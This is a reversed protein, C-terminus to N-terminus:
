DQKPLPQVIADLLKLWGIIDKRFAYEEFEEGEPGILTSHMEIDVSNYRVIGSCKASGLVNARKECHFPELMEFKKPLRLKLAKKDFIFDSKEIDKKNTLTAGNQNFFYSVESTLAPLNKDYRSTAIIKGEKSRVYTQSATAGKSCDPVGSYIDACKLLFKKDIMKKPLCINYLRYDDYTTFARNRKAHDADEPPTSCEVQALLGTIEPSNTDRTSLKYIGYVTLIFVATFVLRLQYGQM